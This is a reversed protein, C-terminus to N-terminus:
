AFFETWVAAAVLTINTVFWQRTPIISPICFLIATVNGQEGKPDIPGQHYEVMFVHSSSFIKQVPM